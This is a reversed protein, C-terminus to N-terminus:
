HSTTSELPLALQPTDARPGMVVQTCWGAVQGRADLVVRRVTQHAPPPLSALWRQTRLQHARCLMLRHYLDVQLAEEFGVRLRLGEYAEHLDQRTFPAQPPLASTHM